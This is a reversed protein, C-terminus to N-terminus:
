FVTDGLSVKVCFSELFPPLFQIILAILIAAIATFLLLRAQIIQQAYNGFVSPQPLVLKM